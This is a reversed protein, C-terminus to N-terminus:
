PLFFMCPYVPIFIFFLFFSLLRIICSSSIFWFINAFSPLILLYLCYLLCELYRFFIWGVYCFSRISLYCSFFIVLIRLLGHPPCVLPIAGLLMWSLVSNSIALRHHFCPNQNLVNEDMWSLSARCSVLHRSFAFMSSHTVLLFAVRIWFFGIFSVM